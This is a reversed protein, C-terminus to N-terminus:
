YRRCPQRREEGEFGCCGLSTTSKQALTGGPVYEMIIALEDPTAKLDQMAVVDPHRLQGIVQWERIFRSAAEPDAAVEPHMRKMAVTEGTATVAKFVSGSAGRGIEGEVTLGEFM